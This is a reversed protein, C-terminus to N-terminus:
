PHKQLFRVVMAKDPDKFTVKIARLLSLLNSLDEIIEFDEVIKLDKM